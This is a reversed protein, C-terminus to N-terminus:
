RHFLGSFGRWSSPNLKRVWSGVRASEPLVDKGTRELDWQMLLGVNHAGRGDGRIADIGFAYGALVQWTGKPSTWGIGGGLGSHWSGPQDLGPVYDVYATGGYVVLAWGGAVPVSWM